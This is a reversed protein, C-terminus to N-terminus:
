RGRKPLAYRSDLEITQGFVRLLLRDSAPPRVFVCAVDWGGLFQNPNHAQRQGFWGTSRRDWTVAIRPHTDMVVAFGVEMGARGRFQAGGDPQTALEGTHQWPSGPPPGIPPLASEEEEDKDPRPFKVTFGDSSLEEWLLLPQEPPGDGQLEVDSNGLVALATRSGFREDLFKESIRFTILLHRGKPNPRTVVLRTPDRGIKSLMKQPIGVMDAILEQTQPVDAIAVYADVVQVRPRVAGRLRGHLTLFLPLLILPLVVFPIKRAHRALFQGCATLRPHKPPPKRRRPLWPGAASEEAPEAQSPAAPEAPAVPYPPLALRIAADCDPCRLTKGAAKKPIVL